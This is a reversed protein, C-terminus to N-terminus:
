LSSGLRLGAINFHEHEPYLTGGMVCQGRGDTATDFTSNITGTTPFCASSSVLGQHFSLAIQGKGSLVCVDSV